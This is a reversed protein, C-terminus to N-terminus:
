GGDRRRLARVAAILEEVTCDPRHHMRDSNWDSVGCGACTPIPTDDGRPRDYIFSGYGTLKMAADLVRQEDPDNTRAV